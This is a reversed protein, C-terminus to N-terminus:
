SIKRMDSELFGHSAKKFFFNKRGVAVICSMEGGFAFLLSQEREEYFM